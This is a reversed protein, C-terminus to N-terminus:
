YRVLSQGWVGEATLAHFGLWQVMLSNVTTCKKPLLSYFSEWCNVIIKHYITKLKKSRPKGTVKKRQYLKQM